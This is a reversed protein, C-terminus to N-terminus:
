DRASLHCRTSAIANREMIMPVHVFRMSWPKWDPSQLAEAEDCCADWWPWEIQVLQGWTVCVPGVETVKIILV